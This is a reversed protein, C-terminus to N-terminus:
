RDGATPATGPAQGNATPSNPGSKAPQPLVQGSEIAMLRLVARGLKRQDIEPRRIGVLRIRKDAQPKRRPKNRRGMEDEVGKSDGQKLARKDWGSVSKV